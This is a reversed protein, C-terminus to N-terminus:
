RTGKHPPRVLALYATRVITGYLWCTPDMKQKPGPDPLLVTALDDDHAPRKGKASLGAHLGPKLDYAFEGYNSLLRPLWIQWPRWGGMGCDNGADPMALM